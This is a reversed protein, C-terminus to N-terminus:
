RSEKRAGEESDSSLTTVSTLGESMAYDEHQFTEPKAEETESPEPSPLRAHQRLRSSSPASASSTTEEKKGRAQAKPKAGLDQSTRGPKGVAKIYAEDPEQKSTPADTGPAPRPKLVRWNVGEKKWRAGCEKCELFTGWSSHNIKGDTHACCEPRYKYGSEMAEKALQKISMKNTGSTKKSQKTATALLSSVPPPNVGFDPAVTRYLMWWAKAFQLMSAMATFTRMRILLRRWRKVIM